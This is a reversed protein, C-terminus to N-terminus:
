VAELREELTERPLLGKNVLLTRVVNKHV